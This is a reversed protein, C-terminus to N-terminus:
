GGRRRRRRLARKETSRIVGEQSILKPYAGRRKKGKGRSELSSPNVNGVCAVRGIMTGDRKGYKAKGGWALDEQSALATKKGCRRKRETLRKRREKSRPCRWDTTL